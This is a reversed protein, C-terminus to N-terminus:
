REKFTFVSIERPCNLRLPFWHGTGASVYAYNGKEEYLGKWYTYPFPILSKGFLNIQGGHSHGALTLPIGRQFSEDIFIPHHALLIIFADEPIGELAKDLYAKREEEGKERAFSYDVGAMYVAQDEGGVRYNSNRLVKMPSAEFARKVAKFDRIYEHNGYIFDIGDPFRLIDREIRKVLGPLFAIEDILDGTIVLRDPKEETIREIMHDWDDLNFFPGMHLDSVQAIKYNMLIHPIKEYVLERRQIVLESESAYAMATAGTFITAPALFATKKFLARRSVRVDSPISEDQRLVAWRVIFLLFLVVICIIIAFLWSYSLLSAHYMFPSDIDEILRLSPRIVALIHGGVALAM